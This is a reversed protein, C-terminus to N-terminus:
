KTPKGGADGSDGESGGGRGGLRGRGLPGRWRLAELASIMGNDGGSVQREEQNGTEFM